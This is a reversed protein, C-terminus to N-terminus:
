ATDSVVVNAEEEQSASIDVLEMIHNATPSTSLEVPQSTTDAEEVGIAAAAYKGGRGGFYMELHMEILKTILDRDV